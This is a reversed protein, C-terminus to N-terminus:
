INRFIAASAARSSGSTGSWYLLEAVRADDAIKASGSRRLEECRLSGEVRGAGSVSAKHYKGGPMPDRGSIKVNRHVENM